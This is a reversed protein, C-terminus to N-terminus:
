VCFVAYSSRMLSQVEYTHEEPRLGGLGVVIAGLAPWWMWHVPLRHFLDEIRYLLNSLLTAELGVAVGLVAAIGLASELDPLAVALPFMPGAGILLPRCGM